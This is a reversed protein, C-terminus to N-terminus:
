FCVIFFIDYYYNKFPNEVNNKKCETNLMEVDDGWGSWTTNVTPFDKKIQKVAKQFSVGEKLLLEKTITTLQTCYDSIDMNKPIILYSKKKIAGTVFNVHAVGIEIIESHEDQYAKDEWCTAELDIVLMFDRKANKLKM